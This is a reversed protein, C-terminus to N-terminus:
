AFNFTSNVIVLLILQGCVPAVLTRTCLMQIDKCHINVSGCNTNSSYAIVSKLFSPVNHWERCCRRLM